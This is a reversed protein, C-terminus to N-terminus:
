TQKLKSQHISLLVLFFISILIALLGTGYYEEHGHWTLLFSIIGIVLFYLSGALFAEM